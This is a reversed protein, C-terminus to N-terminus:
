PSGKPLLLNESRPQPPLYPSLLRGTFVAPGPVCGGFGVSALKVLPFVTGLHYVKAKPKSETEPPFTSELLSLLPRFYSLLSLPLDPM